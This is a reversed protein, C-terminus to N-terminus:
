EDKNLEKDSSSSYLKLVRLSLQHLRWHFSEVILYIKTKIRRGIEFCPYTQFQRSVWNSILAVSFISIVFDM